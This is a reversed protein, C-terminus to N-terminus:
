ISMVNSILLGTCNCFLIDNVEITMIIYDWLIYIYLM